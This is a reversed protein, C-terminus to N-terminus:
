EPRITFGCTFLTKTELAHLTTDSLSTNAICSFHEIVWELCQCSVLPCACAPSPHIRKISLSLFIRMYLMQRILLYGWLNLFTNKSLKM